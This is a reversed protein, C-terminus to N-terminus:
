RLNTYTVVAIEEVYLHEKRRRDALDGFLTSRIGPPVRPYSLTARVMRRERLAQVAEDAERGRTKPVYMTWGSSGVDLADYHARTGYLDSYQFNYYDSTSAPGIYEFTTGPNSFAAEPDGLTVGWNAWAVCWGGDDTQWVQYTHDRRVGHEGNKYAAQVSVSVDSQEVTRELTVDRVPRALDTGYFAEIDALSIAPSRCSVAYREAPSQAEIYRRLTAEPGAEMDLVGACGLLAFVTTTWIVILPRITFGAPRGSNLFLVVLWELEM